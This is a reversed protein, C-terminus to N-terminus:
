AAKEQEIWLAIVKRLRDKALATDGRRLADYAWRVESREYVDTVPEPGVPAAPAPPDLPASGLKEVGFADAVNDVADDLETILKSLEATSWEYDARRSLNALLRIADVAKPLRIALMRQFKERKTETM